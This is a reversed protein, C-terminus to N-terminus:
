VIAIASCNHAPLTASQRDRIGAQAQFFEINM